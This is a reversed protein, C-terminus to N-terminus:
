ESVGKQSILAPIFDASLMALLKRNEKDYKSEMARVQIAVSITQLFEQHMQQAMASKGTLWIALKSALRTEIATLMLPDWPTINTTQKLYRIYGAATDFYLHLYELTYPINEAGSDTTDIVELVRLCDAALTHVYTFSSFTSGVTTPSLAIRNIICNWPFMRQVEDRTDAFIRNVAITAKSGTTALATIPAIGIRQLALNAIEVETAVNTSM